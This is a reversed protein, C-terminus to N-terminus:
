RGPRWMTTVVQGGATTVTTRPVFGAREYRHLNAPNSSELYAPAGLADIRSLAEAVLGMGIGRGRHDPNTALLSLYFHPETPHVEELQECIRLIDESVQEGAVGTLLDGMGAEEAETLETGGPPIWLSVADAAGTILTWPYRQASVAYLRWFAAAQEARRARDPFAPGWLPDEFFAATLTEVVADVDAPGAVRAPVPRYASSM